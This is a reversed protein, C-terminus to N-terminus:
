VFAFRETVHSAMERASFVPAFAITQVM